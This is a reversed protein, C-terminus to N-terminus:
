ELLEILETFKWVAATRGQSPAAKEIIHARELKNLFKVVGQKSLSVGSHKCLDPLTFLPKTFMYDLIQVAVASGTVEPFIRKSKEYLQNMANLM